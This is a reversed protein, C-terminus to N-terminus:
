QNEQDSSQPRRVLLKAGQYNVVQDKKKKRQLYNIIPYICVALLVLSTGLYFQTTMKEKEGFIMVALLIGYVPELNITLNIAFASLRKMLNVSVAFPIITCVLALLLLWLWDMPLPHFNVGAETLWPGYIPMFLLAFVCAGAMEYLTIVYPSHRSAFRGNIVMFSAAGLASVIAMSLGLWYDFEFRFIVVLGVIVFLGLFVEYGKIRTKNFFPGVFATWLSCTAMGALCVSANSVRAAWFFLIWHMSIIFGTLFIKIGQNIPLRMSKGQVKFLIVLALCAILTRFFVIEVAPVSILLGLIVTFSWIVVILHLMGYDKITSYSPSM